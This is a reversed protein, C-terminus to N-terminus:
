RLMMSQKSLFPMFNMLDLKPDDNTEVYDAIDAFQQMFISHNRLTLSAVTCYEKSDLANQILAKRAEQRARAIPAAAKFKGAQCLDYIKLIAMWDRCICLYNHCEYAMRKAIAQNCRTDAAAEDFIAIAEQSLASVTYLCREVDQRMALVKELAEGLYNRPFPKGKAIGAYQHYYMLMSMMVGSNALIRRDPDNTSTYRNELIWDFVLRYAHRVQEYRPGFNRRVYRDTIDALFGAQEYNWAFDATADHTLDYSRDWTAYSIIGLGNDRHNMEALLQTNHMANTLLDWIYYGNWPKAVSRVNLEPHMSDFDLAEKKSLYTWWDLMLVDLVDAEKAAAIFEELINETYARPGPLLMDWYMMVTKMGKEKLHKILKITFPIFLAGKSKDRCKPCKCWPSRVNDLNKLDAANRGRGDQVEDLGIHFIDIGNPILYEDIIQDYIDFLLEYTAEDNTCFGYLTPEGSETKASTQPLQAPLYTNHGLSNWLPIVTVGKERGYAIIQGLLDDRFIPPLTEYDVWQNKEPDFYRVTMPTQLQPYKRLPIYLYESVRNDYQIAWCGYLCINAVNMKKSALDDIMAFWEDKEMINSGWRSEIFLGRYPNEPWDLIELAPLELKGNEWGALQTLTLVGYLLGTEGFGIVTIGDATATLRYGEEANANVEAPAKELALTVPFGESEFCDKGCHGTFWATLDNVATKAPGHEAHPASLAIKCNQTLTLPMGELPVAKRPIPLVRSCLEQFDM